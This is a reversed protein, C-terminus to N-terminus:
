SGSFIQQPELRRTDHCSIEVINEMQKIMNMIYKIVNKLDKNVLFILIDINM